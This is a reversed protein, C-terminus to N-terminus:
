EDSKDTGSAAPVVCLVNVGIEAQGVSVFDGGDESSSSSSAITRRFTQLSGETKGTNSTGAVLYEYAGQTYVCFHRVPGRCTVTRQTAVSLRGGDRIDFVAISNEGKGAVGIGGGGRNSVFLSHGAVIMEASAQFTFGILAQQTLAPALTSVEQLCGKNDPDIQGTEKHISYVQIVNRTEYSVYLYDGNPSLAVRRPCCGLGRLKSVMGSFWGLAPADTHCEFCFTLSDDSSTPLGTTPDCAYTFIVSQAPDVVLLWKASPAYFVQHSSPVSLGRGQHNAALVKKKREDLAPLELTLTPQDMLTTPAEQTPFQFFSVFSDNHHAIALTVKDQEVSTPAFAAHVAERGGTSGEVSMKTLSSHNTLDDQQFFTLMAPRRNWFSTLAVWLQPSHPHQVIWQTSVGGPSKAPLGDPNDATPYM